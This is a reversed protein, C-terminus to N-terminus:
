RCNKQKGPKWSHGCNACRCVTKNSGLFGTLISYGRQGATIATSGCKPCHPNNIADQRAKEKAEKQQQYKIKNNINEEQTKKNTYYLDWNITDGVYEKIVNLNYEDGKKDLFFKTFEDWYEDRTIDTSKYPTGCNDCIFYLTNKSTEFKGCNPCIFLKNSIVKNDKLLNIKNLYEAINYNCNPCCENTSDIIKRCNPCEIQTM